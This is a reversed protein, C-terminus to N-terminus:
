RTPARCRLGTDTHRNSKAPKAEFVMAIHDKPVVKGMRLMGSLVVVTPKSPKEELDDISITSIKSNMQHCVIDLKECVSEVLRTADKTNCVYVFM